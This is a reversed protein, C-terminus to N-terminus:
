MWAPAPVPPGRGAAARPPGARPEQQLTHQGLTQGAPPAPHAHYESARTIVCYKDTQACEVLSECNAHGCCM